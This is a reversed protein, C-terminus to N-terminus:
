MRHGHKNAATASAPGDSSRSGRHVHMERLPLIYLNMIAIVIESAAICQSAARIEHRFADDFANRLIIFVYLFNFKTLAYKSLLPNATHERIMYTEHINKSRTM